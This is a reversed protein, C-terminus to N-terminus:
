FLFRRGSLNLLKGSAVSGALPSPTFSQCHSSLGLDQGGDGQSQRGGGSPPPHVVEKGELTM